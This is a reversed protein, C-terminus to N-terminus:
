MGTQTCHPQHEPCPANDSEVSETVGLVACTVNKHVVFACWNKNRQKPSSSSYPAGQFLSYISPTAFTFSFTLTLFAASQLMYCVSACKM